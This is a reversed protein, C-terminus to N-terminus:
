KKVPVTALDRDITALLPDNFQDPLYAQLGYLTTGRAMDLQPNKLFAPVHRELVARAAPNDLLEGIPTTLTTYRGSAKAAALAQSLRDIEAGWPDRAVVIKGNAAFDALTDSARSYRPWQPLAGGNPDGRKVFNALYSSMAEGVDEDKLTTQTGYKIRVNDFFYPIDTAHGAGGQGISDAVYSFRYGRVPVGKDAIMASAERGGAIMFGSKGGIDASTAGIMMPMRAFRDQEYAKRVDVVVKGDVFPGSNTPPAGARGSMQAMNLGDLVDEASLARLRQLADPATPDIGKTRAFNGGIKEVDALTNGTSAKADGGSMVVAKEFLGKAEPSTVLAHVSIGGASEGSITVNAPDGGFASINRKVWQLAAVQDMIGYNGLRGGDANQATLQPLAFTGFRGLRYNFSVFVVGKKAMNAGAYTPPSAGGNVFGGGYIWVLVPLKGKAGAPRWVNAYLCDEAPTTGLPAADSPFPKQMCDSSYQTADRVGTWKAAPQPARWRLPGVPPAAFPIGKWSEVGDDSQGRVAGTDTRITPGAPQAAAPVATLATAVILAKTLCNM